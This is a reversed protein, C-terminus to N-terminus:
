LLLNRLSSRPNISEPDYGGVGKDEIPTPPEGRSIQSIAVGVIKAVNEQTKGSRKRLAKLIAGVSEQYTPEPM